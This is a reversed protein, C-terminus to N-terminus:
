SNDLNWRQHTIKYGYTDETNTTKLGIRFHAVDKVIMTFRQWDEHPKYEIRRTMFPITDYLTGDLSAFVDVILASPIAPAGLARDEGFNLKTEILLQVGEQGATELDVDATYDYAQDAALDATVGGFSTTKALEVAAAWSKSITAM